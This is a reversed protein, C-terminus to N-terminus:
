QDTGDTATDDDSPTLKSGCAKDIKKAEETMAENEEDTMSTEPEALTEANAGAALKEIYDAWGEMDTAAKTLLEKSSSPSLEALDGHGDALGRTAEAVRSDTISADTLETQTSAHDDSLNQAAACFGASYEGNGQPTSDASKTSEVGGDPQGMRCHGVAGHRLAAWTHHCWSYALDVHPAM